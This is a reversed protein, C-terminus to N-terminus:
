PKVGFTDEWSKLEEATPRKWFRDGDSALFIWTRGSQRAPIAGRQCAQRVTIEALHYREAAESVTLTQGLRALSHRTQAYQLADAFDSKLQFEEFEMGEPAHELWSVFAHDTVHNGVWAASSEALMEDDIGTLLWAYPEDPEDLNKLADTIPRM